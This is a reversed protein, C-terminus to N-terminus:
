GAGPPTEGLDLRRIPVQPRDDEPTRARAVRAVPAAPRPAAPKAADTSSAPPREGVPVARAIPLPPRKAPPADRHPTFTRECGSCLIEGTQDASDSVRTFCNPCQVTPSKM